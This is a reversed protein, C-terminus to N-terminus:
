PRLPIFDPAFCKSATHLVLIISRLYGFHQIIDRLQSYGHLRVIRHHQVFSYLCPIFRDKPSYLTQLPASLLFSSCQAVGNPAAPSAPLINVNLTTDQPGTVLASLSAKMLSGVVAGAQPRLSSLTPTFAATKQEFDDCLNAVKLLLLVPKNPDSFTLNRTDAPFLRLYSPSMNSIASTQACFNARSSASPLVLSLHPSDVM